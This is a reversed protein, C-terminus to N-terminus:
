FWINQSAKVEKWDTITATVKIATKTIYLDYIYKKGPDWSSIPKAETDGIEKVYIDKVDITYVDDVTGDENKITVQFKLGELSQACVINHRQVDTTATMLFDTKPKGTFDYEMSGLLVNGATYGNLIKVEAESSQGKTGFGVKNTADADDNTKLNVVVQSMMYRFNLNIKGKTACIGNQIMDVPTHSTSKCMKDEDTNPIEPKGIMFNSPFTTADYAGNSVAVYQKSGSEVVVPKGTDSTTGVSPYIGRMHYHTQHNPWYLKPTLGWASSSYSLTSNEAYYTNPSEGTSIGYGNDKTTSIFFSYANSTNETGTSGPAMNVDIEPYAPDAKVDKWNKITATVEIDTKNVIINLIYNKGQVLTGNVPTGTISTGAIAKVLQAATVKYINGDANLELINTTSTPTKNADDAITATFTNGPFVLADLTATHQNIATATLHMNINAKSSTTAVSTKEEISVNGTYYFDKLTVSPEKEFKGDNPTSTSWGPFGEGATLNVTIKSMAHTFELLDSATSHKTPYLDDFKLTGDKDTKVNNSILLDYDGWGNTTSQDITGSSGDGVNWAINTWDSVESLKSRGDAEATPLNKENVAVGYITLGKDRGNGSHLENNSADKLSMNEPDATGYDDWYLTPSFSLKNHKSGSGTEEGTTATTQKSVLNDDLGKGLWTGDVRLRLQTKNTTSFAKHGGGYTGDVAHNGDIARTMVGSGGESIGAMLTIANNEEGVTHRYSYEEYDKCSALFTLSALLATIKTKIKM